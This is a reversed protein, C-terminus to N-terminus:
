NKSSVCGDFGRCIEITDKLISVLNYEELETYWHWDKAVANAMHSFLCVLKNESCVQLKEVLNTFNM